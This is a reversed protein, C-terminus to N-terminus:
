IKNKSEFANISNLLLGVYTTVFNHYHSYIKESVIYKKNLQSNQIVKTFRLNAVGSNHIHLNRIAIMEALAQKITKNEAIIIGFERMIKEFKETRNRDKEMKVKELLEGALWLYKDEEDRLIFESIELKIDRMLPTEFLMKNKKLLVSIVNKFLGELRATLSILAQTYLTPLGTSIEDNIIKHQFHLQKRKRALLANTSSKPDQVKEKEYVANKNISNLLSSVSWKIGELFHFNKTDDDLFELFPRNSDVIMEKSIM